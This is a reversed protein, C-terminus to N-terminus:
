RWLSEIRWWMLKPLSVLYTRPVFLAYRLYRGMRTPQGSAERYLSPPPEAGEKLVASFSPLSFRRLGEGEWKAPLIEVRQLAPEQKCLLYLNANEEGGALVVAKVGPSRLAQTLELRYDIMVAIYMVTLSLGWLGLCGAFVPGIKWKPVRRIAWHAVIGAAMGHLIAVWPIYRPYGLFSTPFCFLGVACLLAILRVGRGFLLIVLFSALLLVRVSASNAAGLGGANEQEWVQCYPMFDAKGTKWAYYARTLSSSVYANFFHGVHGMARADDNRIEFDWTIDYAPFQEADVTYAPYLPHGYHAWSTIYPAACIWLMGVGLFVACGTLQALRRVWITRSRWLLALSFVVWLVFCTLLAGQKATIMWLSCGLLTWWEREGRTIRVMAAIMGAGCVGVVVDVASDMAGCLRPVAGLVCMVAVFCSLREWGLDRGLRWIPVLAMPVVFFLIPLAVNFPTGLFLGFSANFVEVAHTIFLVHWVPLDGVPALGLANLAEPTATEIPNWGLMLLRTVPHRYRANDFANEALCGSLVWVIALCLLFLAMGRLREKWLVRRDLSAALLSIGGGGLTQWPACTGGFWFAATALLVVALPFVLLERELVGLAPRWGVLWTKM